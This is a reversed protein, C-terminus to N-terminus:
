NFRAARRRDREDQELRAKCANLREVAAAFIAVSEAFANMAEESRAIDEPTAEAPEIGPDAELDALTREILRLGERARREARLLFPSSDDPLLADLPRQFPSVPEKNM